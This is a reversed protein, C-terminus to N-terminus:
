TSLIEPDTFHNRQLYRLESMSIVVTEKLRQEYTLMTNSNTSHWGVTMNFEIKPCRYVNQSTITISLTNRSGYFSKEITIETGVILYCFDSRTM